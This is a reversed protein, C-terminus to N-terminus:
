ATCYTPEHSLQAALARPLLEATLAPTKYVEITRGRVRSLSLDGAKPGKRRRNAVPYAVPNPAGM